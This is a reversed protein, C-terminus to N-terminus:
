SHDNSQENTQRKILKEQKKGQEFLKKAEELTVQRGEFVFPKRRRMKEVVEKLVDDVAFLGHEEAIHATMFADWIVDGLEERINRVDKKRAAEVAEEAESRMAEAFSLVTQEKTWPCFTRCKKVSLRLEEFTNM